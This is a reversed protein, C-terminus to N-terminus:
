RVSVKSEPAICITRRCEITLSDMLSVVRVSEIYIDRLKLDM